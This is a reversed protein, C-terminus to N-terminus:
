INWTHVPAGASQRAAYERTLRPFDAGNAAVFRRQWDAGTRGSTARQGIIALASAAITDAVGLLRLGAAAQPLLTELVLRGLPREHGDLWLVPAALGSRAAAYFNGRAATFPLRLEPPQPDQALAAALGYFFALNASMDALTPGAAMVRHEIRLHAAGEADFGVLPRNWRWITGNHLRLHPLREPPGELALPLMVEFRAQNERFCEALSYGAYGSGFSVRPLAEGPLGSRSGIDLAQEFLPVRTEDWLAHGFLFPANAALAVMPASAIIAANYYRTATDPTVQLHAQFSTTGAELMVDRHECRLHSPCGVAALQPDAAIDLHIRRGHHQRQVQENLARYRNSVSMNELCLQAQALTPLVGISVVKLGFTEACAQCRAWTAELDAALRALGDGALPQPAVNLEINFRALETVVDPSGLRELFAQNMPAPHGDRDILWAELELGAVPPVQAFRGQEIREHLLDTEAALAEDFRLFDRHRFHAADIEQGM